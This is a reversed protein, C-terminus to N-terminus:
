RRQRKIRRRENKKEKEKLFRLLLIQTVQENLWDWDLDVEHEM